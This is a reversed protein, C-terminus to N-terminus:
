HIVENSPVANTEVVDVVVISIDKSLKSHRVLGRPNEDCLTPIGGNM